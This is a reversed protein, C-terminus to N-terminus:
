DHRGVVDDVTKSVVPPLEELLRQTIKDALGFQVLRLRATTTTEAQRPLVVVKSCHTAELEAIQEPKYTEGTAILVDPRVAQILSWKPEDAQKLTIVDVSRLHTLM